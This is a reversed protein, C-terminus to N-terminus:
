AARERAKALIQPATMKGTTEFAKIRDGLHKEEMRHRLETKAEGPGMIVISDAGRLVEIVEDYFHRLHEQYARDRSDDQAGKFLDHVVRGNTDGARSEHREAHSPVVRMTEGRWTITAVVAERHDIWIGVKTKM